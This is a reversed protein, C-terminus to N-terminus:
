RQTQTYEFTHNHSRTHTYKGVHIARRAEHRESKAQVKGKHGGRYSIRIHKLSSFFLLFFPFWMSFWFAFSWFRFFCSAFYIPFFPFAFLFL